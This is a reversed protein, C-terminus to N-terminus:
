EKEKGEDADDDKKKTNGMGFVREIAEHARGVSTKGSGVKGSPGMGRVRPGAIAAVEKKADEIAEKVNDEEFSESGDFSKIVREKTLTPLTSKNVLATVQKHVEAKETQKEQVSEVARNVATEVTSEILKSFNKPLKVSEQGDESDDEDEEDDDDAKKSKGNPKVAEKSRATLAKYLEPSKEKLMDEDIADWDIADEV